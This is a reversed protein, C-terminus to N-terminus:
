GSGVSSDKTSALAVVTDKGVQAGLGIPVTGSALPGLEDSPVVTVACPVLVFHKWHTPEESRIEPAPSSPQGSHTWAYSVAARSEVGGYQSVVTMVGCPRSPGSSMQTSPRGTPDGNPNAQFKSTEILKWNTPSGVVRHQGNDRLLSVGEFTGREARRIWTEEEGVEEVRGM